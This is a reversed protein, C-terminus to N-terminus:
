HLLWLILEPHRLVEELLKQHAAHAEFVQVRIISLQVQAARDTRLTDTLGAVPSYLLVLAEVASLGELKCM